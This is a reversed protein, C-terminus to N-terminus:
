WRVVVVGLPEILHGIMEVMHQGVRDGLGAHRRGEDGDAGSEGGM